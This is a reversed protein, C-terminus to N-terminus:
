KYKNASILNHRFQIELFHGNDHYVGMDYDYIMYVIFTFDLWDLAKAVSLITLRVCKASFQEAQHNKAGNSEVVWSPATFWPIACYQQM